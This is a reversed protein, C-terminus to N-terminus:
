FERQGAFLWAVSKNCIGLAYGPPIVVAAFCKELTSMRNWGRRLNGCSWFGRNQDAAEAAFIVGSFFLVLMLYYVRKM